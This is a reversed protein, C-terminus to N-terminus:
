LDYGRIFMKFFRVGEALASLTVNENVAHCAANQENSMRVPCFRLANESLAHFHRCDTGGRILYPAVGADPFHARITKEVFAYADSHIDSVPSADRGLLVEFELDYKKGYKKLM